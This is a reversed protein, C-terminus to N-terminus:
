KGLNKKSTIRIKKTIVKGGTRSGLPISLAWFSVSAERGSLALDSMYYLRFLIFKRNEQLQCGPRNDPSCISYRQIVIKEDRVARGERAAAKGGGGVEFIDREDIKAKVVM